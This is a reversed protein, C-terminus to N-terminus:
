QYTFWVHTSQGGNTSTPWYTTDQLQDRDYFMWCVGWLVVLSPWITWPMTTCLPRQRNPFEASKSKYLRIHLLRLMLFALRELLDLLLQLLWKRTEREEDVEEVVEEEKEENYAGSNDGVIHKNVNKNTECKRDIRRRLNELTRIKKRLALLAATRLAGPTSSCATRFKELEDLLAIMSSIACLISIDGAM